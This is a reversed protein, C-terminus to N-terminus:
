NMMFSLSFTDTYVAGIIIVQGIVSKKDSPHLLSGRSVFLADNQAVPLAPFYLYSWIITNMMVAIWEPNLVGLVVM